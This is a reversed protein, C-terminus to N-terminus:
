RMLRMAPQSYTPARHCDRQLPTGGCRASAHKLQGGGRPLLLVVGASSTDARGSCREPNPLTDPPSCYVSFPQRAEHRTLTNVRHAHEGLGPQSPRDLMGPAAFAQLRPLM